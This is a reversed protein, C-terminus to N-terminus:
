YSDSAGRNRPANTKEGRPLPANTWNERARAEIMEDLLARVVLIRKGRRGARIVPLKGCRVEDYATQRGIGLYRGAEEVTMTAREALPAKARPRRRTPTDGTVEKADKDNM